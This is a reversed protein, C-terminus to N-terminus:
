ATCLQQRLGAPLQRLRRGFYASQSFTYDGQTDAQQQQNKDNRMYGFGFKFAHQGHTWALDDRIQYNLYSNRWPWYNITWNTNPAGSFDISPLRNLANNGTFIGVANWGSPQSIPPAPPPWPHSTLLTAM